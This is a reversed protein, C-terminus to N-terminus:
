KEVSFVMGAMLVHMGLIGYPIFSGRRDSVSTLFSGKLRVELSSNWVHEAAAKEAVEM